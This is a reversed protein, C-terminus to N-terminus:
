LVTRKELKENRNQPSVAQETTPRSQSWVMRFGRDFSAFGAAYEGPTLGTLQLKSQACKSIKRKPRLDNDMINLYKWREKQLSLM